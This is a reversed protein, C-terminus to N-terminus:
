SPVDEQKKEEKTEKHKKKKKPEVAEGYFVSVLTTLVFTQDISITCNYNTPGTGELNSLTGDVITLANPTVASTLTSRLLLGLALLLVGIILVVATIIKYKKTKSATILDFKPKEGTETTKGM